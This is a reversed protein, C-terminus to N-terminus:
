MTAAAGTQSEEKRFPFQDGLPRLRHGTAEDVFSDHVGIRFPQHPGASGLAEIMEGNWWHAEGGRAPVRLARLRKPAPRVLHKGAVRRHSCRRDPEQRTSSIPPETSIRVGEGTDAYGSGKPHGFYMRHYSHWLVALSPRVVRGPVTRFRGVNRYPTCSRRRECRSPQTDM